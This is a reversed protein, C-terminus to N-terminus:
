YEMFSFCRDERSQVKNIRCIDAHLPIYVHAPVFVNSMFDTLRYYLTVFYWLGFYICAPPVILASQVYSHIWRTVACDIVYILGVNWLYYKSPLKSSHLVVDYWTNVSLWFPGFTNEGSVPCSSNNMTNVALRRELNAKLPPMKRPGSIVQRM